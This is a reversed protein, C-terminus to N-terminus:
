VELSLELLMIHQKLLDISEYEKDLMDIFKIRDSLGSKENDIADKLIDIKSTISNRIIIATALSMENGNIEITANKDHNIADIQVLINRYDDIARELKNVIEESNNTTKLVKRLCVIRESLRKKKTVLDFFNM